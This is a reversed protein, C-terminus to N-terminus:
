AWCEVAISTQARRSRSATMGAMETVHDDCRMGLREAERLAARAFAVAPVPM